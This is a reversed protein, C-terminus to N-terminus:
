AMPSAPVSESQYNAPGSVNASSCSHPLHPVCGNFLWSAMMMQQEVVDTRAQFLPSARYADGGHPLKIIQVFPICSCVTRVLLYNGQSLKEVNQM